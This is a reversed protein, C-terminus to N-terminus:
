KSTSSPPNPNNGSAYLRVPLSSTRLSKPMGLDQRMAVILASLLAEDKDFDRRSANRISIHERYQHLAKLVSVSGVLHVNNTARAFRLHGEATADGEIASSLSDMFERYFKLKEDRWAAEIQLKKNLVFTLFAVLLLAAASV